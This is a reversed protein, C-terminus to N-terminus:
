SEASTERRTITAEGPSPFYDLPEEPKPRQPFPVFQRQRRKNVCLRKTHKTPPSVEAPPPKPPNQTVSCGTYGHGTEFDIPM